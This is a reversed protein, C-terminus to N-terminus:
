YAGETSLVARFTKLIIGIDTRLSWNDAYRLDLRVMDDFSTQSRGSVQWLGTLGPKVELVRSCHWLQYQELEYQIPPRPGVLSMEGKLINFLQPLEDLSTKRLVLGFPTVRPDDNMKYVPNEETGRNITDYRGNILDTVYTEHLTPDAGVVMSRFKLFTFTRGLFGIREQRFLIPGPSTFKIVIGIILMLPSAVIIGLLSGVIDLVRKAVMKFSSPFNPSLLDAYLANLDADDGGGGSSDGNLASGTDKPLDDGFTYAQFFEDLNLREAVEWSSRIGYSIKNKVQLANSANTYPMLIGVKKPDFWGKIDIKRAQTVLGKILKEQQVTTFGHL